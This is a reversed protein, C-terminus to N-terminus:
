MQLISDWCYRPCHNISFSSFTYLCWPLRPPWRLMRDVVGIGTKFRYSSLSDFPAVQGHQKGPRVCSKAAVGGKVPRRVWQGGATRGMCTYLLQGCTDQHPCKTSHRKSDRDARHIGMQDKRGGTEAQLALYNGSDLPSTQAKPSPRLIGNGLTGLVSDLEAPWHWKTSDM